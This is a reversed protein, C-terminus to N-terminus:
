KCCIAKKEKPLKVLDWTGNMHISEMEEKMSIMWRSSDELSVAEEYTSPEECSDIGKAVNLGYVVLDAEVYRKIQHFLKDERGIKLLVTNYHLHLHHHNPLVLVTISMHYINLLSQHM